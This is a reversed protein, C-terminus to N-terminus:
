KSDRLIKVLSDKFSKVSEDDIMSVTFIDDTFKLLAKKAKEIKKADAIDTKTLVIVERKKALEESHTKLENRIIKYDAVPDESELSILHVIMKTRMVHRLFAHGLGKGESAGEILGPIDALVYGYLDGLNPELTTFPYAGIKANARTLANLLSSKGANPFGVFGADVALELEIYFNGEEGVKGETCEEPSINHSSKFSENGRGGLGGQLIRVTEGDNLLNYKKMLDLNTIVSGVPVDIILDKGDNGHMSDKMGAEGSEAVLEKVNKYRVLLGNDRVARAYVDGGRGGNGGSPGCLDKGKEHRWRTVGDGGNGAKIYIKIEDIFAM